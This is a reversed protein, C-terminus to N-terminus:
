YCCPGVLQCYYTFHLLLLALFFIPRNNRSAIRLKSKRYAYLNYANLKKTSSCFVHFM